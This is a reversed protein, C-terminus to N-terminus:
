WGGKVQGNSNCYRVLGAVCLIQLYVFGSVLTVIRYRKAYGLLGLLAIGYLVLQGCFVSLYFVSGMSLYGAALLAIFLAYPVPLRAYKHSILQWCLRNRFPNLWRLQRFFMQYNGALTRTKRRKENELSLRQPDYAVACPEFLVRKGSKTAAMPILVDDLITDEPIPEFSERRLAYIAGTCGICSDLKSEAARIFKELKWYADMGQSAGESSKEIELNGSVGAVGPDVLPAVLYHLALVDFTQRSDAFVLVSGSASAAAINLGAPKGKRKQEIVRIKLSNTSLSNAVEATRDDCGDCVVILERQGAYECETLNKIREAIRSEENHAVVIISLAPWDGDAFGSTIPRSKVLKGLVALCIPYGINAYIIVLLSLWFGLACIVEFSM